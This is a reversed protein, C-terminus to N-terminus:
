KRFEFVIQKLLHALKSGFKAHKLEPLCKHVFDCDIILSHTHDRYASSIFTRVFKSILQIYGRIKGTESQLILGTVATNFWQSTSHRTM